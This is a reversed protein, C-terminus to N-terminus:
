VAMMVVVVVVVVVVDAHMTSLCAVAAAGRSSFM